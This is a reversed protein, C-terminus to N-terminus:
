YVLDPITNVYDRYFSLMKESVHSHDFVASSSNLCDNLSAKFDPDLYEKLINISKSGSSSESQLSELMKGDTSNGISVYNKYLDFDEATMAEILTDHCDFQSMSGDRSGDEHKSLFKKLTYDQRSFKRAPTFSLSNTNTLTPHSSDQDFEDDSSFESDLISSLESTESETSPLGYISPNPGPRKNSPLRLYMEKLKGPGLRLLFPSSHNASVPMFDKMTHLMQVAFCGAFYTMEYPKYLDGFFDIRQEITASEQRVDLAYCLNDKEYEKYPRPLSKLLNTDWWQKYAKAKSSIDFPKLLQENHLYYDTVLYELIAQACRPNIKRIGLFINIVNQKESDSFTNSYYRSFSQMIESSHSTIPAVKRYTKVRHVLQSGGYQLAITDGHDEYLQELLRVADTDYALSPEILVGLAQLQFALAVKGLVFQATNTRDLSDVCNVRVIGSQLWQGNTLRFGAIRSSSPQRNFTRQRLNLTYSNDHNSKRASRWSRFVGTVRVINFGIKGLRHMVNESRSKNCRAMDFKILRIIHQQPLFQNLYGVSNDLMENLVSEHVKKEKQKILNLVVLPTGYRTLLDNFHKATAEYYPDIFDQVIPPKPVIKTADQSWRDPLSGRIQVFSTFFGKSFNSTSADHVIQETEVENAVNGDLNLGRKLFRTGSYHKSRRAILTIYIPKSYVCINAQAVFGHILFIKWDEHLEVFDILHSNWVYRNMPKTRVLVTKLQQKRHRKNNAVLDCPGEDESIAFLSKSGTEDSFFKAGSVPCLNFQLTHSIDYSYSFYFNSSLDISNFARLYKAEEDVLDTPQQNPIYVLRTDEVKYITHYGIEAVKRRKVILILYYGHLFRVFGVLGFSSVTKTLGVQKIGPRSNGNNLRILLDRIEQYNYEVGDDVLHLENDSRDVKLIKFATQTNNSGILYYHHHTVYLAIRQVWNVPQQHIRKRNPSMTSIILHHSEPDAM